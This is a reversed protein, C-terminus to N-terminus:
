GERWWFVKQGYGHISHPLGAWMGNTPLLTWLSNTGYWFEDPFPSTPSYPEPATFPPDQPVTVPCSAPPDHPVVESKAPRDTPASATVADLGKVQEAQAKASPACGALLSALVLISLTFYLRRMPTEKKYECGTCRLANEPKLQLLAM